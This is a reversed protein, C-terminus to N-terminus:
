CSLSGETTLNLRYAGLLTRFSNLLDDAMYVSSPSTMIHANCERTPRLVFYKFFFLCFLLLLCVFLFWVFLVFCFCFRFFFVFCFVFFVLSFSTRELLLRNKHFLFVILSVRSSLRNISHNENNVSIPRLLPKCLVSVPWSRLHQLPYSPPPLTKTHLHCRSSQSVHPLQCAGPGCTFRVDRRIGM